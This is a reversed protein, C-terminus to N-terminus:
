VLDGFFNAASVVRTRGIQRDIAPENILQIRPLAMGMLGEAVDFNPSVDGDKLKCEFIVVPRKNLTILFDLERKQQDRWYNLEFDGYGADRWADINKRLHGAVINEFRAAPDEVSTWDWMYIKPEKTLSRGQKTTFPRVPYCYYLRILAELWVKATDHAIELDQRLNNLSFPSGVRSPLLRAMHELLAVNRIQTLDRIDERILLDRRRMAWRNYQLPDDKSYPEPFGSARTLRDWINQATIGSQGVALWDKPPPRLDGHLIEGVSFPHLHLLDYRGILSDGGRQYIDLRASGTVVAAIDKGRADYLGKLLSKWRPFKHIEDFVYQGNPLNSAFSKAMLQDRDEPIDWNLYHGRDGLWAKALTTKGVQRPGAILVFKEKSLENTIKSLYRMPQLDKIIKLDGKFNDHYKELLM